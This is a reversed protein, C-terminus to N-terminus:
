GQTKRSLVLSLLERLDNTTTPQPPSDLLFKFHEKEQASFPISSCICDIITNSDIMSKLRLILEALEKSVPSKYITSMGQAIAKLVEMCFEGSQAQIINGIIAFAQNQYSQEEDLMESFLLQPPIINWYGNDWQDLSNIISLFPRAYEKKAPDQCITQLFTIANPMLNFYDKLFFLFPYHCPQPAYIIIQNIWSAISESNTIFNMRYFHLVFYCLAMQIDNSPDMWLNQLNSAICNFIQQGFNQFLQYPEENITINNFKEFIKHMYELFSIVNNEQVSQSFGNIIVQGINTYYPAAENNPLNILLLILSPILYEQQNFPVSNMANTLQNLCDPSLLQPANKIICYFGHSCHFPFQPLFQSFVNIFNEIYKPNKEVFHLAFYIQTLPPANFTQFISCYLEEIQPSISQNLYGIILLLCHSKLTPNLFYNDLLDKSAKYFNSLKENIQSIDVGFDLGTLIFELVNVAFNAIPYDPSFNECFRMAATMLNPWLELDNFIHFADILVKEVNTFETVLNITISIYEPKFFYENSDELSLVSYWLMNLNDPLDANQPDNVIAERLICSLQIAVNAIAFHYDDPAKNMDFVSLVTYIHEILIKTLSLDKIAELLKPIYEMLPQFSILGLAFNHYLKMWDDSLPNNQLLQHVYQFIHDPVPYNSQNIFQTYFKSLWEDFYFTCVHIQIEVPFFSLVEAIPFDRNLVIVDALCILCFRFYSTSSAQLHSLIFPGLFQILTNINEPTFANWKRIVANRLAIAAYSLIREDNRSELLKLSDEFVYQSDAWEDVKTILKQQDENSIDPTYISTVLNEVYELRNM